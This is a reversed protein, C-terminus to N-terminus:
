VLQLTLYLRAQQHIPILINRALATRFEAAQVKVIYEVPALYRVEYKGDTASPTTRKVGSATQTITVSANAVVAGSSDTLIGLIGTDLTQGPLIIAAGALLLVPIVKM